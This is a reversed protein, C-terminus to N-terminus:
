LERNAAEVGDACHEGRRGQERRRETEGLPKIGDGDPGKAQARRLEPLIFFLLSGILHLRRGAILCVFGRYAQPEKSICVEVRGELHSCSLAHPLHQSRLQPLVPDASRHRNGLPRPIFAVKSLPPSHLSNLAPSQM